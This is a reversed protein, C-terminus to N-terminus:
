LDCMRDFKNAYTGVWFGGDTMWVIKFVDAPLDVAFVGPRIQEIHGPPEPSLCLTVLPLDTSRDPELRKYNGGLRLEAVKASNNLRAQKNVEVM